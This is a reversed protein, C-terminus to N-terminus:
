FCVEIIDEMTLTYTGAHQVSKTALAVALPIVKKLDNYFINIIALSALFVDGAGTVDIVEAIPAPFNLENWIAGDKGKTIILDYKDNPFSIIDMYEDENVKIVCNEFVSIDKRKTDVYIPINRSVGYSIIKKLYEISLFGKNYDSIIIIDPIDQPLDIAQELLNTEDLRMIQQHSRIDIFRTKSLSKSNNTHMTVQAGFAMLNAAVNLAMGGRNEKFSYNLIPVPAEPSIRKCTGYVYVDDCAEGVLFITM